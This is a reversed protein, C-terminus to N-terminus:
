LQGLSFPPNAKLLTEGSQANNPLVSMIDRLFPCMELTPYHWSGKIRLNLSRADGRRIKTPRSLVLTQKSRTISVYFLRQQEEKYESETGPYSERRLGPITEKCLGLVYVHDATLGKASWLTTVKLMADESTVFPKRTAIRYRLQRAVQRLLESRDAGKVSSGDEDCCAAGQRDAGATRREHHELRQLGPLSWAM